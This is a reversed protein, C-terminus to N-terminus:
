YYYHQTMSSGYLIINYLIPMRSLIKSYQLNLILFLFLYLTWFHELQKIFVDCLLNLNLFDSKNRFFM